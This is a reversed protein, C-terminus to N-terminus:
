LYSLGRKKRGDNVADKGVGCHKKDAIVCNKTINNGVDFRDNQSQDRDNAPLRKLM